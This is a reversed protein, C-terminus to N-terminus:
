KLGADSLISQETKKMLEKSYHRPVSFTKGTIPSYWREHNTGEKTKYCGNKKLLKVVESVKM